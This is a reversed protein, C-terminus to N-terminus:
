EEANAKFAANSIEKEKSAQGAPDAMRGILFSQRPKKRLKV